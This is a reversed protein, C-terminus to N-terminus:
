YMVNQIRCRCNRYAGGEIDRGVVDAGCEIVEAAHVTAELKPTLGGADAHNVVVSVMRGLNAGSESGSALASEMAHVDDELRVAVRPGAIQHVVEGSGEGVGVRDEYEIDIGGALLGNFAHRCFNKGPLNCCLALTVRDM